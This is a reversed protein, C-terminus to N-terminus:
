TEEWLESLLDMMQKYSLKLEKANRVFDAGVERIWEERIKQRTEESCHIMSGTNGETTLIGEEELMKYAKQVTNPNIELQAATERRSPLAMGDALQGAALLQKIRRILQLYVAEKRTLTFHSWIDM